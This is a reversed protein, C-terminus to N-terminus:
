LTCTDQLNFIFKAFTILIIIASEEAKGKESSEQIIQEKHKLLYEGEGDLMQHVLLM